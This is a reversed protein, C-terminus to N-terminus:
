KWKKKNRLLQHKLVHSEQVNGALYQSLRPSKFASFSANTHLLARSTHALMLFSVFVAIYGLQMGNNGQFHNHAKPALISTVHETTSSIECKMLSFAACMREFRDCLPLCYVVAVTTNLEVFRENM